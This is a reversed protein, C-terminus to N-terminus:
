SRFRVVNRFGVSNFSRFAANPHGILALNSLAAPTGLGPCAKLPIEWPVQSVEVDGGASVLFPGGSRLPGPGQTPISAGVRPFLSLMWRLPVPDDLSVPSSRSPRSSDYSGMIGLFTPFQRPDPGVPPFPLVFLRIPQPLCSPVCIDQSCTLPVSGFLWVPWPPCCM